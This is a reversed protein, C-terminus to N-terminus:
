SLTSTLHSPLHGVVLRRRATDTSFYIRLCAAPDRSEGKRLHLDMLQRGSVGNVYYSDAYRGHVIGRTFTQCIDVRLDEAKQLYNARAEPSGDFIADYYERAMMILSKYVLEVDRYNSKRAATIARKAIELRDPFYQNAWDALEDLSQPIPCTSQAAAVVFGEQKQRRLQENEKRLADLAVRLNDCEDIVYELKTETEKARLEHELALEVADDTERAFDELKLSATEVESEFGEVMEIALHSFDDFDDRIKELTDMDEIHENHADECIEMYVKLLELLSQRDFFSFIHLQSDLPLRTIIKGVEKTYREPSIQPKADIDPSELTGIKESAASVETTGSSFPLRPVFFNKKSQEEVFRKANAFSQVRGFDLQKTSDGYAQQVLYNVFAAAGVGGTGNRWANVTDMHAAPHHKTTDSSPNFNSRYYRVAGDHIDWKPTMLSTFDRHTPSCSLCMRRAM